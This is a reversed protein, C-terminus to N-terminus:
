SDNAELKPASIREVSVLGTFGCIWRQCLTVMVAWVLALENPRMVSNATGAGSQLAIALARGQAEASAQLFVSGLALPATSRRLVVM